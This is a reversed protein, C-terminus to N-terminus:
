RHMQGAAQALLAHMRARAEEKPDRGLIEEAIREATPIDELTTIKLNTEAGSVIAVPEDPLYDVVVRTDDTPHFDPDAAALNLLSFILPSPFRYIGKRYNTHRGSIIGLHAM